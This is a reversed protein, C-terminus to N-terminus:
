PLQELCPTTTLHIEFTRPWPYSTESTLSRLRYAHAGDPLQLTFPQRLAPAHLLQRTDEATQRQLMATAWRYNQELNLDATNEYGAKKLTDNVTAIGDKLYCYDELLRSTLLRIRQYETYYAAPETDTAQITENTVTTNSTNSAPSTTTSAPTAPSNTTRTARRAALYLSAQATATGIANSATNWGAYATLNLLPAQEQLLLPLVTEEATFHKSLDVLALRQGAQLAAALRQATAARADLTDQENDRTAILLTCDADDPSTVSTGGLLAIKEAATTANDVAMYPMTRTASAPQDYDVYIRPTYGQQENYWRALLSLAIEDAGHTICVQQATIGHGVLYTRLAEKEINPISYREGDDQGLVLLHLVGDQALLSLQENLLRNEAFHALYRALSAPPIAQELRTLEDTDVPLGAAQEGRLRSYRVLDRREQYGDIGDQPTLRPLISFAYLPVDPHAAHLARLYDCLDAIQAPTATNERAALLGGYLLQDISLIAAQQGALHAQLWPRLGATDGPQSYYDRLEDPPTVIDIGAMAGSDIILQRCPPRGDLPVLLVSAQPAPAPPPAPTSAYDPHIHLHWGLLLASVTLLVLLCTRKM